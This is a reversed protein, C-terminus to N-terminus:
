RHHSRRCKFCSHLPFDLAPRVVLFFTLYFGLFLPGCLPPPGPHPFSGRVSQTGIDLNSTCQSPGPRPRYSDSAQEKPDANPRPELASSFKWCDTRPIWLAESCHALRERIGVRCFLTAFSKGMHTFPRLTAPTHITKDRESICQGDSLLFTSM